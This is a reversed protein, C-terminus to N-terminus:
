GVCYTFVNEVFMNTTYLSEPHVELILDVANLTGFQASYHVPLEGFKNPSRLGATIKDSYKRLLLRLVAIGIEGRLCAWHMINM